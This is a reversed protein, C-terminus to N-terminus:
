GADGCLSGQSGVRHTAFEYQSTVCNARATRNCASTTITGNAGHAFAEDKEIKSQMRTM